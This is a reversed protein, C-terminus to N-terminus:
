PGSATTPSDPPDCVSYGRLALSLSIGSYANFKPIDMGTAKSLAATTDIHTWMKDRTILTITGKSVSFADALSRSTVGCLRSLRIAVIEWETLFANKTEGRYKAPYLQPGMRGKRACDRANDRVTGLFLHNPNGCPRIDCGHCVILGSPIPGHTLEWSIRHTRMYQGGVKWNGYGGRALPRTATNTTIAGTWIWCGGAVIQFRSYFEEVRCRCMGLVGGPSRGLGTSHGAALWATAVSPGPSEPPTTTPDDRPMTVLCLSPMTCRVTSATM